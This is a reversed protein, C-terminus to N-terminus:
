LADRLLEIRKLGQGTSALILVSTIEICCQTHTHSLCRCKCFFGWRIEPNGQKSQALSFLNGLTYMAGMLVSSVEPIVGGKQNNARFSDLTLSEM